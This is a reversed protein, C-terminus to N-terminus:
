SPAVVDCRIEQVLLGDIFLQVKMPGVPVPGIAAGHIQGSSIEYGTMNGLRLTMIGSSEDTWKAEYSIPNAGEPVLFASWDLGDRMNRYPFSIHFVEDSRPFEKVATDSVDDGDTDRLCYPTGFYPEEPMSINEPSWKPPYQNAADETLQTVRSGDSKMIYLDRNGARDSSFVIYQGNPSWSPYDDKAPDETLRQPHTGDSDMVYIEANGDRYSMFVIQKGDPSWDSQGSISDHTLQSVNTGDRGVVHIEWSGSRDSDFTIQSGDPSWSPWSDQAPDDTLIRLNSGDTRVLFIDFDESNRQSSFAIEEGTPSWAPMGDSGLDDTVRKIDTGDINITYISKSGESSDADRFSSFAIKRGDPSWTSWYEGNLHVTLPQAEGTGDAKIMYIGWVGDQNSDFSIWGSPKEVIPIPTNTVVTTTTPKPVFTATAEPAPATASAVCASLVFICILILILHHFRTKM